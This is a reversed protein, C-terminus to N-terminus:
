IDHVLQQKCFYTSRRGKDKGSAATKDQRYMMYGALQININNNLWSATFCLISTKLTGQYNLRGLIEDM